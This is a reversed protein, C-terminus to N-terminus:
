QPLTFVFSFALLTMVMYSIKNISLFYSLFNTHWACVSQVLFLCMVSTVLQLLLCTIKTQNSNPPHLTPTWHPTSTNHLWTSLLTSHLSLWLLHRLHPFSALICEDSVHLLLLLLLLLVLSVLFHLRRSLRPRRHIDLVNLLLASFYNRFTNSLHYYWPFLIFYQLLFSVYYFPM